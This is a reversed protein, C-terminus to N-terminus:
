KKIEDNGYHVKNIQEKDVNGCKSCTYHITEYGRDYSVKKVMEAINGCKKCEKFIAM